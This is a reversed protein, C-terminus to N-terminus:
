PEDHLRFRHDAFLDLDVFMELSCSALPALGVQPLVDGLQRTVRRAVQYSRNEVQGLLVNPDQEGLFESYLFGVVRSLQVPNGPFPQSIDEELSVGPNGPHIESDCLGPADQEYGVLPVTPEGRGGWSDM